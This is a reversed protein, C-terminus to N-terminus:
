QDTEQANFATERWTGWKRCFSTEATDVTRDPRGGVIMEIFEALLGSSALKM